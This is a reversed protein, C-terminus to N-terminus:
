GNPLHKKFFADVDIKEKNVCFKNYLETLRAMSLTDFEEEDKHRKVFLKYDELDKKVLKREAKKLADLYKQQTRLLSM